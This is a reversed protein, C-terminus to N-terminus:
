GHFGCHTLQVPLVAVEHHDTGATERLGAFQEQAGGGGLHQAHQGNGHDYHGLVFERWGSACTMVLVSSLELPRAVPLIPM